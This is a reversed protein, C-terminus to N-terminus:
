IQTIATLAEVDRLTFGEPTAELLGEKQWRSFTRSAAEVPAGVLRACEAPSLHFPVFPAGDEREDGFRTALHLVLTALRRDVKGVSMARLKEELAQAHELLSANMAALLAPDAGWAARVTAADVRLLEAETLAVADAPHAGGGLVAVDVVSERPGFLGLLTEAAGDAGPRSLKVLGSTIVTFHTVSEGARWLSEGPAHRSRTAARAFGRVVELELPSFLRSALLARENTVVNADTTM